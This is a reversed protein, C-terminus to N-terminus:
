DPREHALSLAIAGSGAGLDAIVAHPQNLNKLVLEVMLETDSRPILTAPTVIFNLSWFEQHGTLYAIPQGHSRQEVWEIFLDNQSSTLEKEPWTHLHNRSVNLISALLIEADLQPTESISAIKKIGSQLAASITQSM